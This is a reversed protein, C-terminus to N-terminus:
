VYIPIATRPAASCSTSSPAHPTSCSSWSAGPRGLALAEHGACSTPHVFLVAARRDLEALVPALKPDGLYHGATSTMWIVGDAGDTFAHGIEDLAGDIGPLPLSAFYGFRDPHARKIQAAAQNVERALRRAASADGFYM